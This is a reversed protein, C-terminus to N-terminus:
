KGQAEADSGERRLLRCRLTHEHLEQANFDRILLRIREAMSEGRARTFVDFLRHEEDDLKSRVDQTLDAM